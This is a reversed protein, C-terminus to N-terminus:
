VDINLKNKNLSPNLVSLFSLRIYEDNFLEMQIEIIEVWLTIYYNIFSISM